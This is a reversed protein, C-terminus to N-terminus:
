LKSSQICTRQRIAVRSLAFFKAFYPYTLDCIPHSWLRTDLRGEMYSYMFTQYQGRFIRLSM